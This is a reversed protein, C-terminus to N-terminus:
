ILKRIEDLNREIFGANNPDALIQFQKKGSRDYAEALVSQLESVDSNLVLDLKHRHNENLNELRPKIQSEFKGVLNSNRKAMRKLLFAPVKSAHHAYPMVDDCTIKDSM